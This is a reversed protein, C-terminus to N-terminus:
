QQGGERILPKGVPFRMGVPELIGGVAMFIGFLGAIFFAWGSLNLMFPSVFGFHIGTLAAIGVNAGIVSIAAAMRTNVTVENEM